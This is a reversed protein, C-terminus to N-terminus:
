RVNSWIDDPTWCNKSIALRVGVLMISQCLQAIAVRSDVLLQSDLGDDAETSALLVCMTLQWKNLVHYMQVHALIRILSCGNRNNDVM